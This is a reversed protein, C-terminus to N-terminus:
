LQPFPNGLDGDKDVGSQGSVGDGRIYNKQGIGDIYVNTSRNNQAGSQISTKDDKSTFVMGPVTDAFELFNRSVQPITQIQHLSVTGGVESTKVEAQAIGT